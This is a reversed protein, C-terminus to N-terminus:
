PCLRLLSDEPWGQSCSSLQGEELGARCDSWREIWPVPQGVCLGEGGQVSWEALGGREGGHEAEVAESM